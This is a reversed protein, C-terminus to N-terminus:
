ERRRQRLKRFTVLAVTGAIAIGATKKLSGLRSGSAEADDTEADDTEVDETDDDVHEEPEDDADNGGGFSSRLRKLAM